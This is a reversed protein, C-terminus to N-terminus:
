QKKNDCTSLKIDEEGGEQKDSGLSILEFTSGNNVYIFESGWPDKPSKGDEFFKKQALTNLGGETSPYSSYDIKYMKLADAVNHMQVCAIKRKAEEGKGTINPMIVAALLGLIVVVVLLEMLSFAKKM